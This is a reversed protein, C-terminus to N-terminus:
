HPNSVYFVILYLLEPIADLLSHPVSGVVLQFSVHAVFVSKNVKLLTGVHLGLAIQGATQYTSATFSTILAGYLGRLGSKAKGPDVSSQM